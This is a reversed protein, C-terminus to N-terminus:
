NNLGIVESLVIFNVLFGLKKTNINFWQYLM